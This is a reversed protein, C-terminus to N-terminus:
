FKGYERYEMEGPLTFYFTSGEGLKSEVGVGGGYHEVIAKTIALGLGTGKRNNNMKVFRDFIVKRSSDDIGCGTDKVYFYFNGNSQQRYGVDIRGKDTFKLANSLLNLLVQSFRTRDVRLRCQPLKESFSVQVHSKAHHAERLCLDSIMANVDVETEHYSLTNSEIKSYDLMDNILQLLSDRNENIEKLVDKQTKEDLSTHHALFETFGIIANLPTRMEHTMNALFASKMLGLEKKQEELRNTLEKQTADHKAKQAKMMMILCIILIICGSLLVLANQGSIAVFQQSSIIFLISKSAM